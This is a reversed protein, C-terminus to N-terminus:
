KTLIEYAAFLGGIITGALAIGKYIAKRVAVASIMNERIERITESQICNALSHPLNRAIIVDHAGVRGNIEKIHEDIAKLTANTVIIASTANTVIIDTKAQHGSLIDHLMERVEARDTKTM